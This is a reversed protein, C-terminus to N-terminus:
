TASTEIQSSKKSGGFGDLAAYVAQDFRDRRGVVPRGIHDEVHRDIVDHKPMLEGLGTQFDCSLCGRRM